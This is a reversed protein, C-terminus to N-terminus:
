VWSDFNGSEEEVTTEPGRDPLVRTDPPLSLLVEGVSHLQRTYDIYGDGVTGLEGALLTDGSFVAGLQSIYYGVSGSSTGPLGLVDIELDGAAFSGGAEIEIEPPHEAGHVKRWPRLERRHLAIPAEDREAVKVAAGIHTNYGNTCAVLYVERDGVAEMIAEADHAPDIVIVGEDDAKVVWTNNVAKYEEGDVELTGATRVRQVGDDDPEDIGPEEPEIERKKKAAPKDESADEDDEDDESADDGEDDEDVAGSESEAEADSSDDESDEESDGDESDAGKADTDESGEDKSGAGTDKESAKESAKGSEKETREDASEKEAAAENKGAGDKGAAEAGSGAEEDAAEKEDASEDIAVASAEEAEGTGKKKGKRKWFM